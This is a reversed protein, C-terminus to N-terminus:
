HFNINPLLKLLSEGFNTRGTQNISDIADNHMQELLEDLDGTWDDYTVIINNHNTILSQISELTKYSTHIHHELDQCRQILQGIEECVSIDDFSTISSTDTDSM